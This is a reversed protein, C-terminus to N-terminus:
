YKKNKILLNHQLNHIVFVLTSRNCVNEFHGKKYITKIKQIGKVEGWAQASFCEDFTIPVNEPFDSPNDKDRM